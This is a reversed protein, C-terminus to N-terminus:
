KRELFLEALFLVCVMLLGAIGMLITIIRAFEYKKGSQSDLVRKHKEIAPPLGKFGLFTKSWLEIWFFMFKLYWFPAIFFSASLSAILFIILWVIVSGSLFDKFPNGLFLQAICSIPIQKM